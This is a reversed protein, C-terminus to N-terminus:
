KRSRSHKKATLKASARHLDAVFEEATAFPGTLKGQRVEELSEEIGRDIARREALTYEEDANLLKPVITIIGGSAKIELEQGSKFGAKRRAAPPIVLPAKNDNKIAVTM